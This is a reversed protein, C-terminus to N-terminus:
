SKQRPWITGGFSDQLEAPYVLYGMRSLVQGVDVVAQERMEFLIGPALRALAVAAADPVGDQIDRIVLDRLVPVALSDCLLGLSVCADRRVQTSLQDDACIRILPQVVEPGLFYANAAIVEGLTREPDELVALVRKLIQADLSSWMGRARRGGALHMLALMAHV